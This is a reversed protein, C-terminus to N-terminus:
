VENGFVEWNETKQRAFLELYKQEPYMSEIMSRVDDPKKSHISNDGIIISKPKEGHPLMSGKVGILLLEHQGYVYFGATHSNKTWVMNTKYEFGWSELVRLGDVLLPNTVWLFCISNDASLDDIEMDCIDETTMTPYHSAASM